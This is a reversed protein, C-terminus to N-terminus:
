TQQYGPSDGQYRQCLYETNRSSNSQMESKLEFKRMQCLLSGRKSAM